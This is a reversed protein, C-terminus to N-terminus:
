DFNVSVTVPEATGLGFYQAKISMGPKVPILPTISGLSLLDGKKLFIGQMKLEDRLWIVVQLPHGLLISSEGTALEKGEQDLIVLKIQALDKEGQNSNTLPIAEGLIGLRAGVNIALLAPANLPVNQSYMLDPLEMFPIVADLSALIERSNTATNIDESGVRVMLDGELMPVSGFNAPVIAGNKLLMRELIIGPLPQSVQFKKQAQANTLAAKYGVIEGLHPVLNEVFQNQVRRARELNFQPNILLPVKALYSDTLKELFTDAHNPLNALLALDQSERMNIVPIVLMGGIILSTLCISNKM